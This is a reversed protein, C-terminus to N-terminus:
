GHTCTTPYKSVRRHILPVTRAGLSRLFKAFSEGYSTWGWSDQYPGTIKECYNNYGSKNAIPGGWGTEIGPCYNPDTSPQCNPSGRYTFSIIHQGRKVAEGDFLSRVPKVGEAVYIYKGKFPAKATLQYLVFCGLPIPKKPPWGTSSGCQHSKIRAAGIAIIPGTGKFDVGQDIRALHPVRAYKFPNVYPPHKARHGDSDVLNVPNGGALQYRNENVPDSPLTADDTANAYSDEQLFHATDTALRRAGMEITGSGTDSRDASYRFPNIPDTNSSPSAGTLPGDGTSLTGDETGYADYGYSAKPAGTSDVLLSADGHVNRGLTYNTTTGGNVTQESVLARSAGYGFSRVLGGGATEKEQAELGTIGLYGFATTRPANTGHKETETFTRNLPDYIFTSSLDPAPTPAKTFTDVAVSRSQSDYQYRAILNASPTQGAAYVCDTAFTGASKLECDLNGNQDFRFKYTSGNPDIETALRAGNYTFRTTNTGATRQTVNGAPDLTYTTTTGHGNDFSSLRDLADYGYQATCATSKCATNSPGALTFQDSVLNGNQYIGNADVYKLTDQELLTASPGGTTKLTKQLGNAYYTWISQQLTSLSGNQVTQTLPSQEGDYTWLITRDDATSSPNTGQDLEKQLWDAGTYTYQQTDGNTVTNGNPDLVANEVLQTVNANTDYQYTTVNSNTQNAAKESVKTPEDFGDYTTTADIKPANVADQVGRGESAQTLNGNADYQYTSTGTGGPDAVQTVAGDANYTWNIARTPDPSGTDNGNADVANPTRSSQWGEASYTFHVAPDTPNNETLVDGTDFYTISTKGSAPIQTWDVAGPAMNTATPLSIATMQGNADYRRYQYLQSGLAADHPLDARTLQDAPDYNYTTVYDTFTSKDPSADYARETIEKSINGVADYKLMSTVNRVPTASTDFPQTMTTARDLQDFATTSKIGNGDTMSDVNGNADFTNSQVHGDADKTSLMEHAGDYSFTTTNPVTLPTYPTTAAPCSTFTANGRPATVTRLDGALDYCSHTVRAGSALGDSGYDTQTLTRDLADYTFGTSDANAIGSRVGNPTQVNTTRGAADYTFTTKEGLPTTTSTQQDLVDYTSTTVSGNMGDATGYHSAQQAVVNDNADFSTDTWILTGPEKATSKPESVRGVRGFSDYYTYSRYTHPDGGTSSAHNADQVWIPEGAADYGMQTVNGDPDTTSGYLGNGDYATYTTIHNNADTISALTGDANYSNTTKNGLPDTITTLNGNGDYGYTWTYGSGAAVGRPNQNTAIQSIHPITRGAEWHASTDNGDVPLDQYTLKTTNGLQDTKTLLLGNSNYTYSTSVGTPETQTALARDASWTLTTDQNLPNTIKTPKGEVDYTYKSVRGLPETVTTIRNTTDYAFSTTTGARNTLSALKWRDTGYGPGLYTFLTENGRPDRVSYIRTSENATGPDPNVRNSALPIAPGSGDSTTYTFVFSRDPLFSGDPNTGGKQTIRLLNGDFYYDFDLERGLHDTISKVKGRIQPKKADAKTFYTITFARGGPDTVKTIKFKPGGPDDAPAVSSETFTLTNGNGDVVSQPFGSQDYYFTVRDPRTLAWYKNPDSSGTARLYLHVGAPAEWYGDNNSDTFRHTTGDGDTFEIYKNANGAIQDAKNPHIDIPNGFRSLSSIALSWNNGAPCDCKKELANYTLDLTSDLGRGPENFPEWRLISNGNAVNVLQQMGAGVDRNVYRYYDELGLADRVLAKNVIVPNDLPQAGKAAFWAGATSDYLDFRLTYRSREVGDPLAPAPVLMNVSASGNPAVTSGLPVLPGDSYVPTPDNSVWRYRLSVNSGWSVTSKNTVTVTVGSSQQTQLSPDYTVVAPFDTSTFSDAYASGSPANKVNITVPASTTVHGGADYAKTTLDHSGDYVPDTASLTDLTATYPATATDTFRNGDVYFEVHTVARDDSASATVPASGSVNTGGVPSTVSTAPAASNDVNVTVVNSTTQNGADDTAVAKLSHSGAALTTTNWSFQWPAATSTSKLVNDVYFEVKAIQGDDSAGATVTVTGGVNASPAPSGISVTPAISHSGDSYTLSLKPKLTPDWTDYDSDYAFWNTSLPTENSFKFLVGLNPATGSVWQQVISALNFTDWKAQDNATHTVSAAVTPDYDGGPTKWKVGGQTELWTAGDGTCDGYNIGGTGQTWASTVRHAEVTVNTAPPMYDAYMQLNASTVTAGTPINRVDFSLIPRYKWNTGAGDTDTGIYLADTGGYNTCDATGTVDELYTEQSTQPTLVTSLVSAQGDAPLTVTQAVSVVGNVVVKYTFSKNPAATTDRYSTIAPDNITAILTSASPTFSASQSRHIQYGGFANGSSGDWQSWRLDAGNAHLTAPAYLVVGDSKYTIDLKPADLPDSADNGPPAPGGIGLPETSRKILIGYNPQSGNLWSQATAAVNWSMWGDPAHAALTYTSLVTSDFGLQSSTTTTNNWAKTVRHAELTHSSLECDGTGVYICSTSDNWLGLNAATVTAGPPISSLDFQVLARWVDTDDTGIWLPTATDTCSGCTTIFNGTQSAPQLTITPDLRVPFARMPDHLWDVDVSLVVSFTAGTRKVDLKANATGEKGAADVARPAALVFLPGHLRPTMFAWSGNPLRRPSLPVDHPDLTFRYETPVTANALTLTEELGDTRVAYDLSVDPLAGPYRLEAGHAAAKAKLAGQLSLTVPRGHVAFRLYNAGLQDKFNVRFSNARNTWAYGALPSPVLTSDIKQWAGSADLYHIPTAYASTTFTGDPNRFTESTATRKAVLEQPADSASAGAVRPSVPGAVVFAAVAVAVATWWGGPPRLGTGQTTRGALGRGRIRLV